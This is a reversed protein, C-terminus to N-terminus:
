RMGPVPQADVPGTSGRERRALRSSCGPIGVLEDLLTIGGDVEGLTELEVLLGAFDQDLILWAQEEIVEGLLEDDVRCHDPNCASRWSTSPRAVQARDHRDLLAALQSVRAKFAAIRASRRTRENEAGGHPISRIRVTWYREAVDDGM